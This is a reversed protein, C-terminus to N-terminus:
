EGVEIHIDDPESPHNTWIRIRTRRVSVKAELVKEWPVIWVAVTRDPTDLLGDFTLRSNTKTPNGFTIKTEGDQFMRCAVLICSATSAISERGIRPVGTATPAAAIAILSNPAAVVISNM